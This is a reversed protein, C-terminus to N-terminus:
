SKVLTRGSKIFEIKARVIGTRLRQVAIDIRRIGPITNECDLWFACLHEHQVHSTIRYAATGFRGKPLLWNAFQNAIKFSMLTNDIDSDVEYGWKVSLVRNTRAYERTSDLAMLADLLIEDSKETDTVNVAVHETDPLPSSPKYVYDAM